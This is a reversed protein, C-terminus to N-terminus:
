VLCCTLVKSREDWSCLFLSGFWCLQRCQCPINEWRINVEAVPYSVVDGHACQINVTEKSVKELPVLDRQITTKAVGIDLVIGEVAIEEEAGIRASRKHGNPVWYDFLVPQTPCKNAFHGKVHCRAHKNGTVRGVTVTAQSLRRRSMEQVRRCATGLLTDLSAVFMANDPVGVSWGPPSGPQKRCM